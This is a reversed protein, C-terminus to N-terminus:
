KKLLAKLKVDYESPKIVDNALQDELELIQKGNARWWAVLKDVTDGKANVPVEGIDSAVHLEYDELERQMDPPISTKEVLQIKLTKELLKRM